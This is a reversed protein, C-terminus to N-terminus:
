INHCIASSIENVKLQVSAQLHLHKSNSTLHATFASFFFVFSHHVHVHNRRTFVGQSEIEMVVVTTQTVADDTFPHPFFIGFSDCFISMIANIVLYHMM